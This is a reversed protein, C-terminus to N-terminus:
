IEEGDKLIGVAVLADTLVDRARKINENEKVKLKEAITDVISISMKTSFKILENASEQSKEFFEKAKDGFIESFAKNITDAISENIKDALGKDSEESMNKGGNKKKEEKQDENKMKKM